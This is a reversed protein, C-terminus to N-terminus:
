ENSIQARLPLFLFQKLIKQPARGGRPADAEQASAVQARFTRAITPQLLVLISNTVIPDYHIVISLHGNYVTLMETSLDLRFTPLYEALM